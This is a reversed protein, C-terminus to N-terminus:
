EDDADKRRGRQEHPFVLRYDSEIEGHELHVPLEAGKGKAIKSAERWAAVSARLCYAVASGVQPTIEGELVARAVAALLRATAVPGEPAHSALELLSAGPVM